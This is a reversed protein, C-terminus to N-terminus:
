TRMRGNCGDLAPSSNGVSCRKASSATTALKLENFFQKFVGEGHCLANYAVVGNEALITNTFNDYEDILVMFRIKSGKLGTALRAIKANCSPAKLDLILCKGQEPAPDGHIALGGFLEDFRDAYHVGYYCQFSARM